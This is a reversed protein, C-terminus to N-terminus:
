QREPGQAFPSNRNTELYFSGRYEKHFNLDEGGMWAGPM